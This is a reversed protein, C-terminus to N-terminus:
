DEDKCTDSCPCDNCGDLCCDGIRDELYKEYADDFEANNDQDIFWLNHTQKIDEYDAFDICFQAYLDCPDGEGCTVYMGWGSAVEELAEQFAEDKIVDSRTQNTCWPMYYKGSPYLSLVSGLYCSALISDPSEYKNYSCNRRAECVMDWWNWENIQKKYHAKLIEHRDFM